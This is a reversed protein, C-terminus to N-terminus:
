INTGRQRVLQAPQKKAKKIPPPQPSSERTMEPTEPATTSEPMMESSCGRDSLIEPSEPSGCEVGWFAEMSEIEQWTALQNGFIPIMRCDHRCLSERIKLPLLPLDRQHIEDIVWDEDLDMFNVKKKPILISPLPNDKVKRIHNWVTGPICMERKTIWKLPTNGDKAEDSREQEIIVLAKEFHTEYTIYREITHHTFVTAM